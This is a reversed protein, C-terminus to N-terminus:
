DGQRWGLFVPHRPLDYAGIAFFKVKAMMGLYKDQNNWIELREEDSFGTGCNFTSEGFKLVLAGLDERPVKGAAHSTHATRGLENTFAPNTNEMREDFGVVEFEADQWRKMKLLIGENTTSRGFKYISSPKRIMVGEYGDTLQQDEFTLLSQLYMIYHQPLLRLNPTHRLRRADQTLAQYRAVYEDHCNEVHDFAYFYVNSWDKDRSMIISVTNRYCTPSTPKGFILEGDFHELHGFTKQIGDNPIPKLTRSLVIGNQVIARVGDLKPSAIVPFVLKALDVESALMPKFEPM